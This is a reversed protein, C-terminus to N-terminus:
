EERTLFAWWPKKINTVNGTEADVQAQVHMKTKIFGFLKVQKEAKVEYTAKTQNGKGIEKLEVTCNREECKAGLVELARESATEPMFKILANKGNSLKTVNITKNDEEISTINKGIKKLGRLGNNEESISDSCNTEWPRICENLRECWSYGASGKCGHEDSDNGVILNNGIAPSVKANVQGSEVVHATLKGVEASVLGVLSFIFISALIFFVLKKMINFTREEKFINGSCLKLVKKKNDEQLGV